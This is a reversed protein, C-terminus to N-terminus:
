FNFPSLRSEGPAWVVECIVNMMHESLNDHSWIVLSTIIKKIKHIQRSIANWTKKIIGILISGWLGDTAQRVNLNINSIVYLPMVPLCLIGNILILKHAM